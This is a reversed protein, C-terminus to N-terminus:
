SVVTEEEDEKLITKVGNKIAKRFSSVGPAANMLNKAMQLRVKRRTALYSKYSCAKSNGKIKWLFMKGSMYVNTCAMSAQLVPGLIVSTVSAVTGIFPTSSFAGKLADVQVDLDEVFNEALEEALESAVAEANEVLLSHLILYVGTSLLMWASCLFNFLLSPKGGYLQSLEVIMRSQMYLLAASDIWKNSSVVVAVGTIKSYNHIIADAKKDIIKDYRELYTRLKEEEHIQSSNLIKHYLDQVDEKPQSFNENEDAEKEKVNQKASIDKKLVKLAIAARDYISQEHFRKLSAFVVLPYLVQWYIFFAILAWFAWGLIPYPTLENLTQGKAIIDSAFYILLIFVAVVFVNVLKKGSVAEYLMGFFSLCLYLATLILLGWFVYGCVPVSTLGNLWNGFTEIDQGRYAWYAGLILMLTIEIIGKM